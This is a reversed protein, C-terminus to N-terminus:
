EGERGAEPVGEPGLNLTRLNALTVPDLDLGQDRAAAVARCAIQDFGELRSDIRVRSRGASVKLEMWGQKGGRRVTFWALRLRTLERWEIRTGWPRLVLSTDNMEIRCLQQLLNQVAFALFLALLGALVVSVAGSLELTALPLGVVAIGVGARLYDPALKALPYRYMVPFSPVLRAVDAISPRPRANASM